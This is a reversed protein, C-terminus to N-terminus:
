HLLDLAVSNNHSRVLHVFMWSEDTDKVLVRRGPDDDAGEQSVKPARMIQM